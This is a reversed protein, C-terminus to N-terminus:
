MLFGRMSSWTQLVLMNIHNFYEDSEFSYTDYIPDGFYRWSYENCAHKVELFIDDMIYFTDDIM